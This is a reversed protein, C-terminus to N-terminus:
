ACQFLPHFLLFYFLASGVAWFNRREFGIDNELSSGMQEVDVQM